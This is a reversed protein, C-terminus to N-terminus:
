KCRDNLWALIDARVIEVNEDTEGFLLSHMMGDYIKLCKDTSKAKEYLEKSVQPDTVVDANGHLVIFPIDIESLRGSLYETVRLLEVVTGLRPKGTYRMPNMGGIRRKEVVKVSKEVLDATPVIALTPAFRSVFMLIEPIPWSPRVKDSIKCMPAILMAGNFFNPKNIHILLCIAGGMSEGFLFRPLNSYSSDSDVISTFYSVYDDVVANVNPVFAKLGQSRGHAEMDLAFCSFGNSALFITTSQFTWSIDNGYGHVMCIIGRPLQPTIPHWSRTFLSLGRPSKFFSSSSTINHLKYYDQEDPSNGWYYKQKEM